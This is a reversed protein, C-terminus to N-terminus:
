LNFLKFDYLIGNQTYVIIYANDLRFMLYNIQQTKHRTVFLYNEWGIDGSELMDYMSNEFIRSNPQPTHQDVYKTYNPKPININLKMQNLFHTFDEHYQVLKNSLMYKKTLRDSNKKTEHLIFFLYNVVIYEFTFFNSNNSTNSTNTINTEVNNM